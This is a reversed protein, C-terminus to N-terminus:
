YPTPSPSFSSRVPTPTWTPRASTPLSTPSPSSTAMGLSANSEEKKRRACSRRRRLKCRLTVASSSNVLWPQPQLHPLQNFPHKYTYETSPLLPQLLVQQHQSSPSSLLKNPYSRTRTTKAPSPYFPSTPCVRSQCERKIPFPKPNVLTIVFSPFPPQHSFKYVSLHIRM